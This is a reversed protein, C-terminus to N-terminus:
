RPTVVIFDQFDLGTWKLIYFVIAFLLPHLYSRLGEAWEWTLHGTGFVLKHAIEVSQWTEDILFVHNLLVYKWIYRFIVGVLFLHVWLYCPWSM